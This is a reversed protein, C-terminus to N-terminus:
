GRGERLLQGYHYGALVSRLEEAAADLRLELQTRDALQVEDSFDLELELLACSERLFNSIEKIKLSMDGYLHALSLALGRSSHATIIDAIAEAQVLDLKGNLFARKSFEGPAALRAGHRLLLDLLREVVLLGGHCNIEVMNEGTFSRPAVYTHLIVEDITKGDAADRGDPDVMRGHYRDARTLGISRKGSFLAACLTLAKEGSVRIIALAGPGPPTALAAITDSEFDPSM